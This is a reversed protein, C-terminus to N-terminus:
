KNLWFSEPRATQIVDRGGDACEFEIVGNEHLYVKLLTKDWLGSFSIGKSKNRRYLERM